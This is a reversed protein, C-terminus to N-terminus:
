DIINNNVIIIKKTVNMIDDRSSNNIIYANLDKFFKQQLYKLVNYFTERSDIENYIEPNSYINSITNDNILNYLKNGIECCHEDLSEESSTSVFIKQCRSQITSRVSDM